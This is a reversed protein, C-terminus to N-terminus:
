LNLMTWTGPTFFLDGSAVELCWVPFSIALMPTSSSRRDLTSTAPSLVWGAWASVSCHMVPVAMAVRTERLKSVFFVTWVTWVAWLMDWFM